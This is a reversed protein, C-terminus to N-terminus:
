AFQKCAISEKWSDIKNIREETSLEDYFKFFIYMTVSEYIVHVCITIKM